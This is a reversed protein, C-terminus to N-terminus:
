TICLRNDIISEFQIQMDHGKVLVHYFKIMYLVDHVSYFLIERPGCDKYLCGHRVHWIERNNRQKPCEHRERKRIEKEAPLLNM